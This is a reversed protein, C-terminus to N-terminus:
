TSGRVSVVTYQGTGTVERIHIGPVRKLLEPLTKQEGKFDEPRVISVTGPSLKSEWEPRPAEVTVPPLQYTEDHQESDSEAGYACSYFSPTVTLALACAISMTLSKKKLKHVM